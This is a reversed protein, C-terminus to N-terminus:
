VQMRLVTDTQEAAVTSDDSFASVVAAVVDRWPSEQRTCIVLRVSYLATLTARQLASVCCVCRGRVSYCLACM